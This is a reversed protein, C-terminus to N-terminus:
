NDDGDGDNGEKDDGRQQHEDAVASRKHGALRVGNGRDQRKHVLRPHQIIEHPRFAEGIRLHRLHQHAPVLPIPKTPELSPILPRMTRNVLLGHQTPIHMPNTIQPRPRWPLIYNLVTFTNSASGIVHAKASTLVEKYHVAM